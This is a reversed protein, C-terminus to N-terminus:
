DGPFRFDFDCHLIVERSDARSVGFLCSVVFKPLARSFLSGECVTPPVAIHYNSASTVWTFM